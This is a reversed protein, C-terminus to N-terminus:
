IECANHHIVIPLNHRHFQIGLLFVTHGDRHQECASHLSSVLFSAKQVSNLNWHWAKSRCPAMQSYASSPNKSKPFPPSKDMPWKQSYCPGPTSTMSSVSGYVFEKRCILFCVWEQHIYGLKATPQCAPCSSSELEWEGGQHAVNACLELQMGSHPPKPSIAPAKRYEDQSTLSISGPSTEKTESDKM